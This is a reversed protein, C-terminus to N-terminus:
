HGNQQKNTDCCFNGMSPLTCNRLKGLGQGITGRENAEGGGGLAETM